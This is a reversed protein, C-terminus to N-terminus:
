WTTRAFGHEIQLREFIRKATYRQKPLAMVDGAPDGRIVPILPGLAEAAPLSIDAYLGSDGLVSVDKFDPRPKSRFVRAASCMFLPDRM